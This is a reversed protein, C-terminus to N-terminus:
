YQIAITFKRKINTHREFIFYYLILIKLTAILKIKMRIALLLGIFYMCMFNHTSFNLIQIFTRNRQILWICVCM